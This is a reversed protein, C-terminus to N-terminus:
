VNICIHATHVNHMCVVTCLLCLWICLYLVDFLNYPM